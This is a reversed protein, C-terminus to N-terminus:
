TRHLHHYGHRYVDSILYLSGCVVMARQPVPAQAEVQTLADGLSRATTAPVESGPMESVLEAPDRCQVWPMGEVPTSFPVFIVNPQISPSPALLTDLMARANKGRSCAMIWTLSLPAADHTGVCLEVYQRLAQASAENHAGDLLMPTGHWTTWECRGPWVCQDLARALASSGESGPFLRTAIQARLATWPDQSAGDDHAISWLTQLATAAGCLRAHSAEVRVDIHAQTSGSRGGESAAQLPLQFHVPARLPAHPQTRQVSSWPVQTYAVRAHRAATVERITALVESAPQPPAADRLPLRLPPTQDGIVCLGHPHVIGLKERTIAELTDGLLAEHDMAIACVVSALVNSAPFVNTADLRGGVGVEIVLVDPQQAPPLLTFALLAQVTLLEFPTAGTPPGEHEAAHTVAKARVWTAEDVPSGDPLQVSDRETVLHPTNFRGSRLGAGHRLLADLYATTSGKGNTGAVHIVPFRTQPSGVRRLLAQVRSLGLDM